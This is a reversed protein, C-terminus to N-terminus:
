DLALSLAQRVLVLHSVNCERPGPIPPHSVSTKIHTIPSSASHPNPIPNLTSPFHLPAALFPISGRTESEQFTGTGPGAKSKQVEQCRKVTEEWYLARGASCLEKNPKSSLLPQEASRAGVTNTTHIIPLTHQHLLQGGERIPHSQVCSWKHGLHGLYDAWLSVALCSGSVLGRIRLM